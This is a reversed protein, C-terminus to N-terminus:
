LLKRFFELNQLYRFEELLHFFILFYENDSLYDLTMKFSLPKNLESCIYWISHKINSFEQFNFCLYNLVNDTVPYDRFTLRLEEIFPFPTEDDKKWVQGM